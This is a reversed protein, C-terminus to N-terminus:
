ATEIQFIPEETWIRALLEFLLRFTSTSIKYIEIPIGDVGVAKNRKLSTVAERVEKETLVNLPNRVPLNPM